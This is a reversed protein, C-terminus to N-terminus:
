APQGLAVGVHEGVGAVLETLSVAKGLDALVATKEGVQTVWSAVPRENFAFEVEATHKALEAAALEVRGAAHTEHIATEFAGVLNIPQTDRIRM